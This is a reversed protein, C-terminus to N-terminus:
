GLLSPAGLGPHAGSPDAGLLAEFRAFISDVFRAAFDVAPWRGAQM